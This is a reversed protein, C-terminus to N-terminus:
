SKSKSSEKTEKEFGCRRCKFKREIYLRDPEDTPIYGIEKIMKWDHDFGYQCKTETLETPNKGWDDM